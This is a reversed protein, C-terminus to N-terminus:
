VVSKRDVEIKVSLEESSINFGAISVKQESLIRRQSDIKRALPPQPLWYCPLTAKDPELMWGGSPSSEIRYTGQVVFQVSQAQGSPIRVFCCSVGEIDPFNDLVLTANGSLDFYARKFQSSEVVHETETVVPPEFLEHLTFLTDGSRHKKQKSM